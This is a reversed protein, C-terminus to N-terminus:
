KEYGVLTETAVVGDIHRIKDGVLAALEGLTKVEVKAIVDYCGMICHAETVGPLKEVNEKVTTIWGLYEGPGVRALIFATVM